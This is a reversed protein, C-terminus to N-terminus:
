PRIKLDFESEIRRLCDDAGLDRLIAIAESLREQYPRDVAKLWGCFEYLTVALLYRDQIFFDRAHLEAKRFDHEITGPDDNTAIGYKASIRFYLNRLNIPSVKVRDEIERLIELAGATNGQRIALEAKRCTILFIGQDDVGCARAEDLYRDADAFKGQMTFINALEMRAYFLYDLAKLQTANRVAKELLAVAEPYNGQKGLMTGYQAYDNIIFLKEGLQERLRINEKFYRAAADWRGERMSEWALWYQSFGEGYRDGIDRRVQLSLEIYTKIEEWRQTKILLLVYNSYVYGLTRKDGIRQCARRAKQFFDNSSEYKKLGILCTAINLLSEAQGLEDGIQEQIALARSYHELAMEQQGTDEFVVGLTDLCKAQGKKDGSKEYLAIARNASEAMKSYDSLILYGESLFYYIESFISPMKEGAFQAVLNEGIGIIERGSGLQKLIELRKVLIKLNLLERATASGNRFYRADNKDLISFKIKNM